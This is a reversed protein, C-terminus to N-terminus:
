EEDYNTLTDWVDDLSQMYEECYDRFGLRETSGVMHCWESYQEKLASDEALAKKFEADAIDISRHQEILDKFYEEIDNM